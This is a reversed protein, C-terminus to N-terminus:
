EEELIEWYVKAKIKLEALYNELEAKQIKEITVLFSISSSYETNEIEGNISKIKYKVIEFLEYPLEIKYKEIEVLKILETKLISNEISESYASILGRVGLKTGGYYRTVVAVINTLNYKQLTNTIPKGATGAPEGSDSSHILEGSKGIVYGWCNHTADKYDNSIKSIFSKAEEINKVPKLHGIFISSKIKLESNIYEPIVYFDKSM